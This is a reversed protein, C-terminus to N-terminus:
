PSRKHRRFKNLIKTPPRGTRKNNMIDVNGYDTQEIASSSIAKILNGRRPDFKQTQYHAAIELNLLKRDFNCWVKVDHKGLLAAALAKEYMADVEKEKADFEDDEKICQKMVSEEKIETPTLENTYQTDESSLHVDVHNYNEQVETHSNQMSLQDGSLELTIEAGTSSSMLTITSEVNEELKVESDENEDMYGHWELAARVLEVTVMNDPQSSNPYAQMMTVINNIVVNLWDHLLDYLSVFTTRLIATNTDKTYFQYALRLANKLNFLDLKALVQDPIPRHNEIDATMLMERQERECLFSSHKDEMQVWQDSMERASPIECLHLPKLEGTMTRYKMEHELLDLYMMVSIVSTGIRRAIEEPNHKGCRLLAIFFNETTEQDWKLSHLLGQRTYQGYGFMLPSEQENRFSHETEAVLLAYSLRDIDQENVQETVRLILESRPVYRKVQNWTLITVDNSTGKFQRPALSKKPRLSM